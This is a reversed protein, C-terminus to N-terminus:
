KQALKKVVSKVKKFHNIVVDFKTTDLFTEFKMYDYKGYKGKYLDFSFEDKFIHWILENCYYQTTDFIDFSNDFPIKKSLYYHARDAITKREEDTKGKFRVVVVSSDKSDRIFPQLYQWQVGDVDSVTSSVSHIVIFKGTSDKALIACHSLALPENLSEVILDSVLGYGHRMIIDGERLQSVEKQTLSYHSKKQKLQSKYEYYWLFLYVLLGLLLLAIFIWILKKKM